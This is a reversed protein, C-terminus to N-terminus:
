WFCTQSVMQISIRVPLCTQIMSIQLTLKVNATPTINEIEQLRCPSVYVVYVFDDALEYFRWLCSQLSNAM